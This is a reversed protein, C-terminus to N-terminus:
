MKPPSEPEERIFMMFFSVLLLGCSLWITKQGLTPICIGGIGAGLAFLLIVGFYRAAKRLVQRNGTRWYACLAEMGSRLNGICMTSAFACGDVKRFAQVQMACSFSVITNALSNLSSPTFGVLFLLLIEALLVFQRWHLRMAKQCRFRIQEVAAIGAAFALLPMVYHLAELWNGAFLNQSLLVINGTQANAFVQGRQIYTYADQLGGSASILIMTLFAESMQGRHHKRQIVPSM